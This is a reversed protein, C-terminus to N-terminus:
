RSADLLNVAPGRYGLAKAKQFCDRAKALNKSVGYSSGGMYNCGTMVWAEPVDYKVCQSLFELSSLKVQPSIPAGLRNLSAIVKNISGTTYDVLLLHGLYFRIAERTTTQSNRNLAPDYSEALKLYLSANPLRKDSTLMSAAKLWCERAKMFDGKENCHDGASSLAVPDVMDTKVAASDEGAAASAEGYVEPSAPTTTGYESILARFFWQSGDRDLGALRELLSNRLSLEDSLHPTRYYSNPDSEYNNNYSNNYRTASAGVRYLNEIEYAIANEPSCIATKRLFLTIKDLSNMNGKALRVFMRKGELARKNLLLLNACGLGFDLNKPDAEAAKQMWGLASPLDVPVGQGTELAHSAFVMGVTSGTAAISLALHLRNEPTERPNNMIATAKEIARNRTDPDFSSIGDYLDQYLPRASKTWFSPWVLKQKKNYFANLSASLESPSDYFSETKREMWAYAAVCVLLPIGGRKVLHFFPIGFYGSMRRATYWILIGLVVLRFFPFMTFPAVMAGLMALICFLKLYDEGTDRALFWATGAAWLWGLVLVGMPLVLYAIWYGKALVYVLPYLALEYFTNPPAFSNLAAIAQYLIAGVFSMVLLFLLPGVLSAVVLATQSKTFRHWDIRHEFAEFPDFFGRAVVEKVTGWSSPSQPEEPEEPPLVPPVMPELQFPSQPPTGRLRGSVPAPVEALEIKLPVEPTADQSDPTM